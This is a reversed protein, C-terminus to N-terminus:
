PYPVPWDSCNFASLAYFTSVWATVHLLIAYRHENLFGKGIDDVGVVGYYRGSGAPVEVVDGDPITQTPMRIDVGKPLLLEMPPPYYFAHGGSVTQASSQPPLMVRRGPTLNGVTVVDPPDVNVVGGNHWINVALNFSPLAFAM